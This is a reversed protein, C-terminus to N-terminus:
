SNEEDSPVVVNHVGGLVVHENEIWKERRKRLIRRRRCERKGTETKYM